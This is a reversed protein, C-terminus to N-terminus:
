ALYGSSERKHKDLPIVSWGREIAEVVPLPINM